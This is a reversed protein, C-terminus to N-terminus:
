ARAQPFFASASVQQLGAVAAQRQWVVFSYSATLPILLAGAILLAKVATSQITYWDSLRAALKKLSLWLSPADAGDSPAEAQDKSASLDSM